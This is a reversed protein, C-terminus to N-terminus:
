GNQNENLSIVHGSDHPMESSRHKKGAHQKREVNEWGPNNEIEPTKGTFVKKAYPDRKLQWRLWATIYADAQEQIELHDAGKRRGMIKEESSLNMFNDKMDTLPTILKRDLPGTGAVMFTPIKVQSTDYLWSSLHLKHSIHQTVASVTVLTDYEEGYPRQLAHYAGAGGQSYGVIGMHKTDVKQYFLSGKTANLQKMQELGYQASYGLGTESDTNGLVLFGWSALHEYLPEDADCSGGTGNLMVVLPWDRNREEMVSPYWVKYKYNGYAPNKNSIIFSKVEYTGPLRYYQEIKGYDKITVTYDPSITYGAEVPFLNLWVISLLVLGIVKM